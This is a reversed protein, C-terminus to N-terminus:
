ATGKERVFGPERAFVCPDHMKGAALREGDCALVTRLEPMPMTAWAGPDPPSALSATATTNGASCRRGTPGNRWTVWPLHGAM